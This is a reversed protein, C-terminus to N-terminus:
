LDSDPLLLRAMDVDYLISYMELASVPVRKPKSEHRAVTTVHQETVNAVRRTSMGARSRHEKLRNTNSKMVSYSERYATAEEQTPRAEILKCGKRDRAIFDVTM